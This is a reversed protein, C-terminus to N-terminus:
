IKGLSSFGLNFILESSSLGVLREREEEEETDESLTPQVNPNAAGSSVTHIYDVWWKNTILVGKLCSVFFINSELKWEVVIVCWRRWSMM